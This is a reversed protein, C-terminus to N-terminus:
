SNETKSRPLEVRDIPVIDNMIRDLTNQIEESSAGAGLQKQVQILNSAMKVRNQSAEEDARAKAEKAVSNIEDRVDGRVFAEVTTVMKNLIRYVLAASFGGLMALSPKAFSASGGELPILSALIIGAIIGVVFRIWYSAEFKPDFTYNAIFSHATFLAAFSAGMGAAFVFFLLNVLLPLGNQNLIDGGTTNVDPSLAVTIFGVLFFVSVFMMRRLLAVPGLWSFMSEERFLPDLLLITRPKAPAVARSLQDHTTSLQRIDLSESQMLRTNSEIQQIRELRFAELTYFVHSPISVGEAMSHRGMSECEKLMQDRILDLTGQPQDNEKQNERTTETTTM